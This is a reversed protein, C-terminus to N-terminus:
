EESDQRWRVRAGKSWENSTIVTSSTDPRMTVSLNKHVTFLAGPQGLSSSNITIAPAIKVSTSVQGHNFHLTTLNPEVSASCSVGNLIFRVERYHGLIIEDCRQLKSKLFEEENLADLVRPTCIQEGWRAIDEAVIKKAKKAHEASIQACVEDIRRFSEQKTSKLIGVGGLLGALKIGKERMIEKLRDITTDPYSVGDTSKVELGTRHKIASKLTSRLDFYVAAPIMKHVIKQSLTIAGATYNYRASDDSSEFYVDSVIESLLSDIQVRQEDSIETPRFPFHDFRSLFENSKDFKDM